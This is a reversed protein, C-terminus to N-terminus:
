ITFWRPTIRVSLIGEGLTIVNGGPALSPFEHGTLSVYGNANTAGMFCEMAECDIDIYELPNEAITVAVNGITLVGSGFVRIHPLATFRTPNTITGSASLSTTTLGSVLYRQPKCNFVLDFRGARNYPGTEPTTGGMIAAMRFENPHYTDRLLYYKGAKSMLAARFADFRTEFGKSIFCPYTIEVNEFRNNNLILDGSRGPITVYEFARVPADFTGTGSIWVYYDTTKIDDFELYNGFQVIDSM